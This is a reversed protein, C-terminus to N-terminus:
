RASELWKWWRKWRIPKECRRVTRYRYPQVTVIAPSATASRKTGYESWPSRLRPQDSTMPAHKASASAALTYRTSTSSIRLSRRSRAQCSRWASGSVVSYSISASTSRSSSVPSNRASSGLYQPVTHVVGSTDPGRRSTGDGSRMSVRRMAPPSCSRHRVDHAEVVPEGVRGRTSEDVGAAQEGVHAGGLQILELLCCAALGRAGRATRSRQRLPGLEWGGRTLARPRSREMGM